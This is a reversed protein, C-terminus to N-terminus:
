KLDTPLADIRVEFCGGKILSIQDAQDLSAFGPLKKAFHVVDQITRNLGMKFGQWCTHGMQADPQLVSSLQRSVADACYSTLILTVDFPEIDLGHTLEPM